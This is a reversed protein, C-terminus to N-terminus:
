NAEVLGPVTASTIQRVNNDHVLVRRDSVFYTGFDMVVLNYCQADESEAVTELKVPGATSHLWQGAKLEKAMQWGIGSVWFPHGPTAQIVTDGLQLKLTRHPPRITTGIVPKYALEGTDPDQALVRDGGQIKEIAAPGTATWVKTGEVFCSSYTIRVNFSPPASYRYDSAYSVEKPPVYLDNYDYWWSWWQAPTEALSNGTTVSLLESVRENIVARAANEQQAREAHALDRLLTSDPVVQTAVRVTETRPNISLTTHETAQNESTYDGDMAFGEQYLSLRHKLMGDLYFQEFQVEVPPRLAAMAAPVYSFLSRARLAEAAATRAEPRQVFVAHKLLSDTAAQGPMAALADIVALGAEAPGALSISELAPIALPDSISRIQDLAAAQKAADRSGIARVLQRVRPKWHRLMEENAKAQEQLAQKQDGTVLQRRFRALGLKKIAEGSKRNAALAGLLHMRQQERWGHDECWQALRLQDAESRTTQQCLQRYEDRARLSPLDNAAAEISLWRGAVRAEGNHWHAAPMDPAVRLAEALHDRRAEVDGRAEAQLAMQVLEEARELERNRESAAVLGALLLAHTM